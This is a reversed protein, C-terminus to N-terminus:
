KLKPPNCMKCIGLHDLKELYKNIAIVFGAHSWTLPAVSVPTGTQPHLQESLIGTELAHAAVWEFIDIAPQFEEKTAAINLYYEALWMTTIFWPNGPTTRDVQYYPDGEYRAYGGVLQNRLREQCIKMNQQVRGDTAPLLGFQFIGYVSSFDLTIDKKMEEGEYYVMKIFYGLKPDYLHELIAEKVKAAVTRFKKARARTGFVEEFNAAAQFGAYVTACTFTHIGLKEEWLDYSEKPLGTQPDMFRLMFEASKRIFPNFIKKIYKKDGHQAFHKWLADLVLALQDEQIPLQLHGHKLWPHWSSGLSGDPRYKHFLYGDDTLVRCCFQFFRETIDRYGARDLSRAILAGDRPWMYSYSDKWFYLMDTDGSAIIAGRHDIHTSIVLLSRKFLDIVKESLGPYKFKTKNVWKKWYGEVQALIAEPTEALVYKNLTSIDDYDEGACIWYYMEQSQQSSLPCALSIVSDVSGHEIPNNSLVGDEADKYTGELGFEGVLGTAYSTIGKNGVRGNMLFYRRGKYHIVSDLLPNYYVTDGLNAESIEFQQHFFVRVEREQEKKNTITVKRIFINKHHCVADNITIEIGLSANIGVIDTVLTEKRYALKKKWEPSSFWSFNGDVWIGLRHVTGNVHNEQGVYPFYFDRLQADQDLGVLITGNGLVFHRTM